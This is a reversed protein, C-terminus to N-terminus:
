RAITALAADDGRKRCANEIRNLTDRRDRPKALVDLVRDIQAPNLLPVVGHQLLEVMYQHRVQARFLRRATPRLLDLAMADQDSIPTWRRKEYARQRCAPKCYVAPRGAPKPMFPKGCWRCRQKKPRIKTVVEM